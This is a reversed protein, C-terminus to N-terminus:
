FMSTPKSMSPTITSDTMSQTTKTTLIISDQQEKRHLFLVICTIVITTVSLLCICIIIVRDKHKSRNEEGGNVTFLLQVEATTPVPTINAINNDENIVTVNPEHLNPAMRSTKKRRDVIKYVILAVYRVFFRLGTILGGFLAILTTMAYVTNYEMPYSYQCLRPACQRFYLDFSTNQLWNSVFLRSLITEVTTNPIALSSYKLVKFPLPKHYFIFTQMMSVCLDNFFCDLTSQLLANLPLCGALFGQITEGFAKDQTNFYFGPFKSCNSQVDCSCNETGYQQPVALMDKRLSPTEDYDSSREFLFNWNSKLVAALQNGHNTVQILKLIEMFQNFTTQKFQEILLETQFNFEDNSIVLATIFDTQAFRSLSINLMSKSLACLKAVTQLQAHILARYDDGHPVHMMKDFSSSIVKDLWQPSVFLSQCIPHYEPEIRSIFQNHKIAMRSCPCQLKFPYKSFLERYKLPSPDKVIKTVSEQRSLTYLILIFLVTLLLILYVRTIRRGRRIVKSDNSPPITPFLNLEEITQKGFVVLNHFKTGTTSCHTEQMTIVVSQRRQFYKRVKILLQVLFPLLLRLATNFGGILGVITTIISILSPRSTYTYSCEIPQCQNFYSQFSSDNKWSQIFLNNALSGVQQYEVNNSLFSSSSSKLTSFNTPSFTSNILQTIQRLCTQNYFCELTSMLVSKLPFWGQSMGPIVHTAGSENIVVKLHCNDFVMPTCICHIITSFDNINCKPREHWFYSYLELQPIYTPTVRPDEKAIATNISSAFQNIELNTELLTLSREFLESVTVKFQNVLVDIHTQFAQSSLVQNTIFKTQYFSQLSDYVTQNAARCLTSLLQFFSQSYYRIDHTYLPKPSSQTFQLDIWSSTVFHSLCVEHYEPVIYSILRNEISIQNCPCNLTLPYQDDLRLFDELSPSRVTVHITQRRLSTFATLIIVASLMLILYLRTTTYQQHLINADNTSPISKFLNLEILKQKLLRFLEKMRENITYFERNLRNNTDQTTITRRRSLRFKQILPLITEIIVPCINTLISSLGGYLGILLTVILLFSNGQVITYQCSAPACNNFYQKFSTKNSWHIVFMHSLLTEITSDSISSNLKSFSNSSNTLNDIMTQDYLIELTSKLLASVMYCGTQFGHVSNNQFTAFGMCSQVTSSTCQCSSNDSFTYKIGHFPVSGPDTIDPRRRSFPLVSTISAGTLFLNQAIIDQTFTLTRLFTKPTMELFDALLLDIHLQFVDQTPLQSQIMETQLFTEVTRTITEQTLQCFTRLTKFQFVAIRHFDTQISNNWTKKYLSFLQQFFRESIFDSQCLEHYVPEIAVFQKYKVAVTTCPCHLSVDKRLSSYKVFSPSKIIITNERSELSYYFAIIVFSVVLLILYLHTSRRENQIVSEDEIGSQFLNLESLSSKCLTQYMRFKIKLSM